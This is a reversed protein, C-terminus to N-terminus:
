MAVWVSSSSSWMWSANWLTPRLCPTIPRFPCGPWRMPRFPCYTSQRGTPVRRATDRGCRARPGKAWTPKAESAEGVRTRHFSGGDGRVPQLDVGDRGGAVPLPEEVEGVAVVGPAPVEDRGQPRVLLLRQVGLLVREELVAADLEEEGL